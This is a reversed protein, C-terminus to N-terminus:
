PLRKLVLKGDATIKREYKPLADVDIGETELAEAPLTSPRPQAEDKYFVRPGVHAPGDNQLTGTVLDQPNSIRVELAAIREDLRAIDALHAEREAKRELNATELAKQLGQLRVDTRAALAAASQLDQRLTVMMVLAAANILLLFIILTVVFGNGSRAAVPPLSRPAVVFHEARHHLPMTVGVRDSSDVMTMRDDTLVEHGQNQNAHKAQM